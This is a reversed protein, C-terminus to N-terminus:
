KGWHFFDANEKTQLAQEQSNISEQQVLTALLKAQQINITSGELLLRNNLDVASKNDKTRDIEHHLSEMVRSEKSIQDFALQSSTRSALTTQAQLRYYQNERVNDKNIDDMIPFEQSLKQALQAYEGADGAKYLSLLRQWSAANNGWTFQDGDYNLAGYQHTGTLGQTIDSLQTLSKKNIDLGETQLKKIDLNIGNLEGLKNVIDWLDVAFAAKSILLLSILFFTLLKRM